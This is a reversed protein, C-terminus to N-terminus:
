RMEKGIRRPENIVTIVHDVSELLRQLAPRHTHETADGTSPNKQIEGPYVQYPQNTM